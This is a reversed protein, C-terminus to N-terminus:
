LFYLPYWWLIECYVQM